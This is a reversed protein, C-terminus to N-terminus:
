FNLEVSIRHVESLLEYNSFAYDFKILNQAFIVNTGAGFSFNEDDYNFKYGGRIFLRDFFSIETGFNVREENDNPHVADIAGRIKLFEYHYIDFSIGVQFSLPLPYQETVYRAPTLRNQPLEDSKDYVINLDEGDFNLDAGFNKMSMGITLNQFDLKYQTGIDFAVGQATENWIRQSIYKVTIGFLFKDTLNRAFSIGLAIDQADFTRGTGNPMEETTIELEDMSFVIISASFTGIDNLYFSGAAANFDFMSFWDMYSFFAANKEIHALGAPNWFVSSIDDSFAVFANGMSSARAGVSIELFQAGSSGLNPSQAWICSSLFLVILFKNKM